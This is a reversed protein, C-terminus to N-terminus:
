LTHFYNCSLHGKSSIKIHMLFFNIHLNKVNHLEQKEAFLLLGIVVCCAREATGAM